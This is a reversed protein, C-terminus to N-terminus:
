RTLRGVLSSGEDERHMKEVGPPVAAFRGAPSRRLRDPQSLACVGEICGRARGFAFAAVQRLRDLAVFRLLRCPTRARSFHRRAPDNTATRGNAEPTAPTDVIDLLQGDETWPLPAGDAGPSESSAAWAAM